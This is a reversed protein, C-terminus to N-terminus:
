GTTPSCRILIVGMCLTPAKWKENIDHPFIGASAIIDSNKFKNLIPQINKIMIADSDFELVSYNWYNLLRTVTIRTIWIRAISENARTNAVDEPLIHVSHFGKNQLVQHTFSDFSIVLIGNAPYHAHLITHALWNILVDLYGKNCVLLTLQREKLQKVTRYLNCIWETDAKMPRTHNPMVSLHDYNASTECPENPDIHRPPATRPATPKIIIIPPLTPSPLAPPLTPPPYSNLMYPVNSEYIVPILGTSCCIILTVCVTSFVCFSNQFQIM